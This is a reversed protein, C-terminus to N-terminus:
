VRPMFTGGSKQEDCALAADGAQRAAFPSCPLRGARLGGNVAKFLPPLADVLVRLGIM